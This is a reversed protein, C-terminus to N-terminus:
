PKEPPTTPHGQELAATIRELTLAACREDADRATADLRERLVRVEAMSAALDRELAATREQATSLDATREALQGELEQAAAVADALDRELGDARQAAAIRIEEISQRAQRNATRWVEHLANRAAEHVAEPMEPPAGGHAQQESRWAQLYKLVTTMSGGGLAERLRRASIEVGQDVMRTAADYIEQQTIGTKPM